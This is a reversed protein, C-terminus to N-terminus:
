NITMISWKAKFIKSRMSLKLYFNLSVKSILFAKMSKFRHTAM